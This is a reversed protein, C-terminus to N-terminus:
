LLKRELKSIFALIERLQDASWAVGKDHPIVVFYWRETGNASFVHGLVEDGVLIDYDGLEDELFKLKM